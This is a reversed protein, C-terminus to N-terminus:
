SGAERLYTLLPYMSKATQLIKKQSNAALLDKDKFLHTVIFHKNRLLDIEPHDKQYGKPASKLKDEEDLGDFYKKFSASKLIKHLPKANYDIEQRIANLKDSDPMWLGGSLFSNGPEAHFYYGPEHVKKGGPTISAGMNTKYPTKDKSFRVDKYIRFVSEKASLSPSIKKDFKRIGAILGEVYQEFEEKAELYQDKHADFWDKNNNKSLQKLFKFVTKM